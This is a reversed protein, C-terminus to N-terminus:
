MTHISHVQSICAVRDVVTKSDAVLLPLYTTKEKKSRTYNSLIANQKTYLISASQKTKPVPYSTDIAQSRM